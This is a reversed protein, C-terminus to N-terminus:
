GELGQNVDGITRCEGFILAEPYKLYPMLTIRLIM